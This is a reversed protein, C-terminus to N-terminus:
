WNIRQWSIFSVLSLLYTSTDNISSLFALSPTFTQKQYCQTLSLMIDFPCSETAKTKPPLVCQEFMPSINEIFVFWYWIGELLILALISWVYLSSICETAAMRSLYSTWNNFVIQEIISINFLINSTKQCKLKISM